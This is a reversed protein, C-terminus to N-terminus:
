KGLRSRYWKSLSPPKDQALLKARGQEAKSAIGDSVDLEFPGPRALSRVWRRGGVEEVGEEPEDVGVAEEL